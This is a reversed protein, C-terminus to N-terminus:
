ASAKSNPRHFPKKEVVAAFLRGRIDIQVLQGPTALRPPLYAMAIGDGSSPSLAGSTTEGVVSGDVLVPYHARPPPSKDTMRIAALRAPLGASKQALLAERGIFGPKDLAVFMGLGAELPTRDPSLDSGNLPYCMELRLTDRAGLGCPKAGAALVSQWIDSALMSPFFIEFGAEGTYGTGAAIVAGRCKELALFTNRAPMEGDFAVRFVRAADPGQVALASMTASRNDIKVEPVGHQELWAVDEAIKVANVLLLFDLEGLRYVILDDIVGGRENLLFTYQAGGVPCKTLDNALMHQLFDFSGPGSVFVEGMHSIDFVGCATRVTQHEDIISTFQVPMEWGGFNICRAGANKQLDYLVTRRVSESV